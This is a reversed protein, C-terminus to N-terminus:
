TRRTTCQANEARRSTIPRIAGGRTTRGVSAGVFVHLHRDRAVMHLTELGDHVEQPDIRALFTIDDSYGSLSAEPFVVVDHAECQNLLEVMRHLNETVDFTMPFPACVISANM